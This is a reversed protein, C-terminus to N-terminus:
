INLTMYRRYANINFINYCVVTLLTVLGLLMYIYVVQTAHKLMFITWQYTFIVILSVGIYVKLSHTVRQSRMLTDYFEKATVEFVLSGVLKELSYGDCFIVVLVAAYIHLVCQAGLVTVHM